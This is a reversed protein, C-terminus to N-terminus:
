PHPQVAARRVGRKTIVDIQAQLVGPEDLHKLTGTVEGLMEGDKFVSITTGGLTQAPDHDVRLTCGPPLLLDRLNM